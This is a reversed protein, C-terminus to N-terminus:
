KREKHAHHTVGKIEGSLDPYQQDQPTKGSSRAAKGARRGASTRKRRKPRNRVGCLAARVPLRGRIFQYVDEYSLYIPIKQKLDM